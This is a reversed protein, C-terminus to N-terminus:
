HQTGSDNSFGSGQIAVDHELIGVTCLYKWNLTIFYNDFKCYMPLMSIGRGLLRNSITAAIRLTRTLEESNQKAYYFVAIM